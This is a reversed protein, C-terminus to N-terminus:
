THIWVHVNVCSTCVRVPICANAVQHNSHFLWVVSKQLGISSSSSRNRYSKRSRLCWGFNKNAFPLGRAAFSPTTLFLQLSGRKSRQWRRLHLSSNFLNQHVSYAISTFCLKQRGKGVSQYKTCVTAECWTLTHSMIATNITGMYPIHQLMCLIHDIHTDKLPMGDMANGHCGLSLTICTSSAGQDMGYFACRTGRGDGTDPGHKWLLSVVCEM